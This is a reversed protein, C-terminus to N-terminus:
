YNYICTYTHIRVNIYTSYNAGDREKAVGGGKKGRRTDLIHLPEMAIATVPRHKSVEKDKHGFRVIMLM